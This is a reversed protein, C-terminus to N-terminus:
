FALQLQLTLNLFYIDVQPPGFNVTGEEKHKEALSSRLAKYQKVNDSKFDINQFEMNTKYALLANLLDEVLEDTYRFKARRERQEDRLTDEGLLYGRRRKEQGWVNVDM